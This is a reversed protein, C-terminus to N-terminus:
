KRRWDKADPCTAFHSATVSTDVEEVVRGEFWAFLQVILAHAAAPPLDPAPALPREVLRPRRHPLRVLPARGGRELQDIADSVLGADYPIRLQALRRKFTEALDGYNTFSERRIVDQLVRVALRLPSRVDHAATKM